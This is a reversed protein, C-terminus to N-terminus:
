CSSGRPPSGAPRQEAAETALRRLELELVRLARPDAGVAVELQRALPERDVHHRAVEVDEALLSQDLDRLARELPVALQEAGRLRPEFHAERRLEVDEAGLELEGLGLVGEDESALRELEGIVGELEVEPESRELLDREIEDLRLILRHVDVQSASTSVASWRRM